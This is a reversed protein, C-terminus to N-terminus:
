PEVVKDVLPDTQIKIRWKPICDGEMKWCSSWISKHSKECIILPKQPIPTPLLTPSSICRLNRTYRIPSTKALVEVHTQERKGWCPQFHVRESRRFRMNRWIIFPYLPLVEGAEGAGERRSLPEAHLPTVSLRYALNDFKIFFIYIVVLFQFIFFITNHKWDSQRNPSFGYRAFVFCKRHFDFKACFGLVFSYKM